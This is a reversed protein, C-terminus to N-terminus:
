KTWSTVLHFVYASGYCYAFVLFGIILQGLDILPGFLLNFLVGGAVGEWSKGASVQPALKHKGFRVGAFYAGIDAMAIMAVVLLILCFYPNM